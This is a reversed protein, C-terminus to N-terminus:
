ALYNLGVISQSLQYPNEWQESQDAAPLNNKGYYQSNQNNSQEKNAFGQQSFSFDSVLVQDVKIGADALMAKLTDVQGSILQSSQLNDTKFLVQTGEKGAIIRINLVGLNEPTLQLRIENDNSKIVKGLTQQIQELVSAKTSLPISTETNKIVTVPEVTTKVSQVKNDIEQVVTTITQKVDTPEAKENEVYVAKNEYEVPKASSSAANQTSATTSPLSTALDDSVESITSSVVQQDAMQNVEPLNPTTGSLLNSNEVAIDLGETPIGSEVQIIETTMPIVELVSQWVMGTPISPEIVEAVKNAEGSETKTENSLKSEEESKSEPQSKSNEKVQTDKTPVTSAESDSINREYMSAFSEQNEPLVNKTTSVPNSISVTPVALMTNMQEM